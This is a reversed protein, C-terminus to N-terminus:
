LDRRGAPRRYEFKLTVPYEILKTEFAWSDGIRHSRKGEAELVAVLPDGWRFGRFDSEQTVTTATAAAGDDSPPVEDPGTSM